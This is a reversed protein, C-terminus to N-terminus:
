LSERPIHDLLEPTDLDISDAAAGFEKFKRASVLIRREFTGMAKNYADVANALNKGMSAFHKTMDYIRKHLEKGLQSIELANKSFQDQKWGYAVARLLGILTTPTAIIVGQDAGLEILSPDQQLASSFFIEAPLFLVVFEPTQEFLSWYNKRGLQIIHTRLHKAHTNLRELRVKEDSTQNADLFAEFPAKADIIIIRDGPLKVIVDPRMRGEETTMVQQEFFDCYSLMGAMEVVRKLQIEGWMGRVDPKRLASVLNATEQRLHKEADIMARMQEKLVEQEGKREKELKKLGDDLRFLSEQVPQVLKAIAKEKKEFEGQSETHLKQLAELSTASLTKKMEELFHVKAEQIKLKSWLFAILAILSFLIIAIYIM